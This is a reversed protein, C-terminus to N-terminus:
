NTADWISHNAIVRGPIPHLMCYKGGTRDRLYSDKSQTDQSGIFRLREKGNRTTSYAHYTPFAVIQPLFMDIRRIGSQTAQQREDQPHTYCVINEVRGTGQVPIMQNLMSFVMYLTVTVKWKKNELLYPLYTIRHM